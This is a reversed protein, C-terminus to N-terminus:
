VRGLIWKAALESANGKECVHGYFDLVAKCNEKATNEDMQEIIDFLENATQAFKFPSKEIDFYLGRGSKYEDLDPVYLVTPKGLLVYDGVLSSYDSIVVDSILLIDQMEPYSSADVIRSDKSWSEDPKVKYHQRILVGWKKGDRKELREILSSFDIPEMGSDKGRFTPAYTVLRDFQELHLAKRTDMALKSYDKFFIDNRPSGCHLIEGDHKMATRIVKDGYDSGSLIVDAHKYSDALSTSGDASIDVRKFARDGHWTDMYLQGKRKHPIVIGANFVWFKATFLERFEAFTGKRVIQVYSPVDKIQEPNKLCWVIKMDPAIEHLKESIARPNCNYRLGNYARFLVKKNDLKYLISFFACATKLFINKLKRKM